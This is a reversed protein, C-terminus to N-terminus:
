ESQARLWRDSASQRQAHWGPPMDSLALVSPDRSVMGELTVLVADSMDMQKGDLFQWGHDDADHSVYLIPADDFAIRRLTVVACNRPQDFPWDDLTMVDFTAAISPSLTGYDVLGVGGVGFTSFAV